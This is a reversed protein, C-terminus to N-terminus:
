TTDVKLKGNTSDVALVVWTENDYDYGCLVSVKINLEEVQAAIEQLTGSLVAM